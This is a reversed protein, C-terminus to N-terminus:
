ALTQPIDLIDPTLQPTDEALIFARELAHRLERVNGPWTHRQMQLYTESPITKPVSGAQAALASLFYEALLFLDDGRARLPALDIPFVRLRYFLDQRFRGDRVRQGLDSNTSAIVRVDVRFVDSSGLRQVEGEQLFRLLKAQMGLPLEAVEDLLLTGTHAAHIRGIRSQLAGTFAGRTFGFLEAELLTEPIAACNVVVFPHRARPSLDHIARAVLEKGTGTEGTLLVPTERPAVLRSLRYTEQMPASEGIMGPLPEQRFRSSIGGRPVNAAGEALQLRAFREPGWDEGSRSDVVVVRVTPHRIHIMDVLEDADLDPLWRDLVLTGCGGDEIRELAEAGGRVGEAQRFAARLSKLVYTRFVDNASAVLALSEQKTAALIAFV